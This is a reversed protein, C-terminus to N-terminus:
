GLLPKLKKAVADLFADDVKNVTFKVVARAITYVMVVSGVIIAATKAPLFGQVASWINAAVAAVSLWFETSKIGSKFMYADEKGIYDALYRILFKGMLRKIWSM